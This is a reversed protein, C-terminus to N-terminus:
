DGGSKEESPFSAVAIWSAAVLDEGTGESSSLGRLTTREAQV